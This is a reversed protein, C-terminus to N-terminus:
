GGQWSPVFDREYPPYACRMWWSTCAISGFKAIGRAQTARLNAKARLAIVESSETVENTDCWPLAKEGNAAMRLDDPVIVEAALGIAIM